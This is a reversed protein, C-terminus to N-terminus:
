LPMAVWRGGSIAPHSGLIRVRASSRSVSEVEALMVAQLMEEGLV